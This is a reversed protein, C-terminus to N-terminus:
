EKKKELIERIKKTEKVLINIPDEFNSKDDGLGSTSLGPRVKQMIESKLKEPEIVGPIYGEAGFMGKSAASSGMSGTGATFININSIGLLQEIPGKNISVHQIRGYPITRFAKWLIGRNILVGEESIAYKYRPYFLYVWLLYMCFIGVWIIIAIMGVLALEVVEAMLGYILLLSFFVLFITVFLVGKILWCKVVKPNLSKWDEKSHKRFELILKEEM